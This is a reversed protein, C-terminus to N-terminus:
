IVNMPVNYTTIAIYFLYDFHILMLMVLFICFLWLESSDQTSHIEEFIITLFYRVCIIHIIYREHDTMLNSIISYLM